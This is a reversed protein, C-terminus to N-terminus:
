RQDGGSRTDLVPMAGLLSTGLTPTSRLLASGPTVLLVDTAPRWAALALIEPPVTLRRRVVIVRYASGVLLFVLAAALLRLLTSPRRVSGRDPARRALVSEFSPAAAREEARLEALAGRLVEADHDPTTM